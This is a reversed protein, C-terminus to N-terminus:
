RRRIVWDAEGESAADPANEVPKQRSAPPRSPRSAHRREKQDAKQVRSNVGPSATQTADPELPTIDAAEPAAATAEGESPASRLVLWNLGLLLLALSIAGLAARRPAGPPIQQRLRVGTRRLSPLWSARGRPLVGSLARRLRKAARFVRTPRRPAGMLRGVELESLAYEATAAESAAYAPGAAAELHARFEEAVAFRGEPDKEVARLIVAELEQPMGPAFRSPPPPAHEIQARMVEYDSECDFPLRGTLLHYLLIGLSYIDSRADTERGRVQEPSMYQVTGVMQGM